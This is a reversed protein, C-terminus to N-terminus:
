RLVRLAREPEHLEESLVRAVAMCLAQHRVVLTDQEYRAVDHELAKQLRDRVDPSIM